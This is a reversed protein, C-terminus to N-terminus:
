SNTAAKRANLEELLTASKKNGVTIGVEKAYKKRDNYGMDEFNIDAPISPATTDTVGKGKIVLEMQKTLTEIQGQMTRNNKVLEERSEPAPTHKYINEGMIEEVEIDERKPRYHTTGRGGIHGLAPVKVIGQAVLLKLNSASAANPDGLTQSDDYVSDTGTIRSGDAMKPEVSLKKAGAVAAAQIIDAQTAM